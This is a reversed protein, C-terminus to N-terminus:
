KRIDSIKKKRLTNAGEDYIAKENSRTLVVTTGNQELINQLKLAIKLNIDSEKVGNKSVAGDPRRRGHGADVIVIKNNSPTAATLITKEQKKYKSITVCICFILITCVVLIVIKKRKLILM